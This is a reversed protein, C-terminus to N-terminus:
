ETKLEGIELEKIARQM